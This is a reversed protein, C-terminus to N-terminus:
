FEGIVNGDDKSGLSHYIGVDDGNPAYDNWEINESIFRVSGDCLLFQAGGPHVSGFAELPADNATTSAPDESHAGTNMQFRTLGILCHVNTEASCTLETVSGSM